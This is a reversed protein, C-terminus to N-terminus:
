YTHCRETIQEGTPTIYVCVEDLSCEEKPNNCPAMWSKYLVNQGSSKAERICQELQLQEQKQREQFRRNEEREAEERRRILELRVTAYEEKVMNYEDEALFYLTDWHYGIGESCRLAEVYKVLNKTRYMEDWIKDSLRLEYEPSFQTIQHGFHEYEKKSCVDVIGARVVYEYGSEINTTLCPIRKPDIKEIENKRNCQEAKLAEELKKIEPVFSQLIRSKEIGITVDVKKEGDYKHLGAENTNWDYYFHYNTLLSHRLKFERDESVPRVKVGRLVDGYIDFESVEVMVMEQSDGYEVLILIKEDLFRKPIERM